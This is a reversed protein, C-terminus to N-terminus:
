QKNTEMLAKDIKENFHQQSGHIVKAYFRFLVAISHGARRAVEAPAVGSTLWLSVGAHRLSYPKAALPSAAEAESLVTRRAAQWTEGYEKSLLHGGRSARFLRGDEAVGFEKIHDRLMRVLVPPIPVSRTANRARRKLGRSDFSEGTNTWASGVRPTSKSLLLEGWGTEPLTCDSLTLATAEAPRAAAYYLCGFFARLHRGRDGQDGTATIIRRSLRPGPVFRFDVEDDAEPAEWDVKTTPLTVLLEREIAFRLANTFVTEKRKVTNAAAPEGNLKLQLSELAARVHVPSSLATVTVSKKAMWALAAAVDKPPEEVETRPKWKGESDKQLQFAWSYLARRLVRQEPMGRTDTVLVPTLTALADAIGARHKASARTWKMAAYERAHAYWTPAQLAKLESEPLGTETDFPERERLANLLENRRGDAQTSLKFSKGFTNAGVRWRVQHPKARDARKRISWIDVDYTLM